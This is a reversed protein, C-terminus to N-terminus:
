KQFSIPVRVSKTQDAYNTAPVLLLYGNKTKPTEILRVTDEFNQQLSGEEGIAAISVYSSLPIGKSDVVQAYLAVDDKKTWNCGETYGSLTVFTTAKELFQPRFLKLGCTDQNYLEIDAVSTKPTSNTSTNQDIQHNIPDGALYSLFGIGLLLVLIIEFTGWQSGGGGKEEAM